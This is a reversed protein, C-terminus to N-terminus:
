SLHEERDRISRGRFLLMGTALATAFMVITFVWSSLALQLGGSISHGSTCGGALRAGYMEIAGGLFAFTFRRAISPGFRESWVRPLFEFRFRSSGLAAVLGGLVVGLLLFTGYSISPPTQMWYSNHWVADGGLFPIAVAGAVASLATTIGLPDDVFAFVVWSLVGIGAGALYPRWEVGSGSVALRPL